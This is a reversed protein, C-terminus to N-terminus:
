DNVIKLGLAADINLISIQFKTLNKGLIKVKKFKPTKVNKNWKSYIYEKEPEIKISNM